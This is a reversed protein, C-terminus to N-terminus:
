FYKVDFNYFLLYRANCRITLIFLALQSQKTLIINNLVKQIKAKYTIMMSKANIFKIHM